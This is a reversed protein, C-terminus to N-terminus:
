PRSCKPVNKIPTDSVALVWDRNKSRHMGHWREKFQWISISFNPGNFPDHLIVKWWSYGVVLSYHTDEDTPERYNVVVPMGQKVFWRVEKLTAGIHEHTHLGHFRLAKVMNKRTTGNHAVQTQKELAKVTTHIGFFGLVMRLTEPGCTYLTKQRYYPVNLRM